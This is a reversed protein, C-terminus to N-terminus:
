SLLNAFKRIETCKDSFEEKELKLKILNSKSIKIDYNETNALIKEIDILDQNIFSIRVENDILKIHNINKDILSIKLNSLEILNKVYDPMPGYIDIMEDKILLNDQPTKSSSIKKYYKLRTVVDNIYDQTILCSVDADIEILDQAKSIFGNKLIEVSKNLMDTFM